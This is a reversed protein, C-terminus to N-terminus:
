RKESFTMSPLPIYCDMSTEVLAVELMLDYIDVGAKACIGFCQSMLENRFDADQKSYCPKNENLNVYDNFDDDPHFSVSEAIIHKAFTEVDSISLIQTIM